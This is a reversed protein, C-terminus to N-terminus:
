QTAALILSQKALMELMEILPDGVAGCGGNIKVYKFLTPISLKRLKKNVLSLNKLHKVLFEPSELSEWPLDFSQCDVKELKYIIECLIEDKLDTLLLPKKPTSATKTATVKKPKSKHRTSRRPGDM